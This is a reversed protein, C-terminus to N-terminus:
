CRGFGTRLNTGGADVFAVTGEVGEALPALYTPLMALSSSAGALGAEMEVRFSELMEAGEYAGASLRQEMLWLDIQKDESMIIHIGKWCWRVEIFRRWCVLRAIGGAMVLGSLSWVEDARTRVAESFGYAGGIAFDIRGRGSLRESGARALGLLKAVDATEIHSGREDCVVVFDDARVQKLFAAGDRIQAQNEM